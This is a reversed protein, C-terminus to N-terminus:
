DDSVGGGVAATVAPWPVIRDMNALFQARRTTKAYKEFGTLTQQKM